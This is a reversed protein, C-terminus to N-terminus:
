SVILPPPPKTSEHSFVIEDTNLSLTRVGRLGSIVGVSENFPSALSNLSYLYGGSAVGHCIPLVIDYRTKGLRADNLHRLLGLAICDLDENSHVM